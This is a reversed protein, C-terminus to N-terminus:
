ARMEIASNYRKRHKISTLQVGELMMVLTSISLRNSGPAPLEITGRELKKYYIVYGTRDWVLIKILTRRKNIFVYGDGNMSNQDLENNIIGCLGRFSKRMDVASRYLYFRRVGSLGIM